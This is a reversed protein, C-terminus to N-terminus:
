SYMALIFFAVMMSSISSLGTLFDPLPRRLSSPSITEEPLSASPPLLASPPSPLRLSSLLPRFRDLFLVFASLFASRCFSLFSLFWCSSPRDEFCFFFITELAITDDESSLSSSFSLIALPPSLSPSPAPALLLRRIPDEDESPPPEGFRPLDLDLDPDPELDRDPDLLELPERELDREPLPELALERDFLRDFLRELDFDPDRELLRDREPELADELDPDLDGALLAERDLDLDPERELLRELDFDPEGARELDGRDLLPEFDRELDRDPEGLM